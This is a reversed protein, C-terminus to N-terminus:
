RQWRLFEKHSGGVGPDASRVRHARPASRALRHGAVLNGRGARPRSSRRPPRSRGGRRRYRAGGHSFPRATWLGRIVELSEDLMEALRRPDTPEGFTGYEADIPSGLGVGLVARGGSLRDLTVVQRAVVQPRRRPLPTVATGIRIRTTRAVVARLQVWPHVVPMATERSGLVHDWFFCGDWCREEARVAMDLLRGPEDFTPVHVGYRQSRTESVRGAQM